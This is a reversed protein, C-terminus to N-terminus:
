TICINIFVIRKVTALTHVHSKLFKTTFIRQLHKLIHLRPALVPEYSSSSIRTEGPHSALGDCTVAGCNTLNGWCNAPVQKYEQTSLPVSLLTDQGLVCYFTGLWLEFGSHESQLQACYGHPWGAVRLKSMEGLEFYQNQLSFNSTSRVKIGEIRFGLSSTSSLQERWKM